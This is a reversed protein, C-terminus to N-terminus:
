PSCMVCEGQRKTTRLSAYLGNATVAHMAAENRKEEHFERQFQELKEKTITQEM